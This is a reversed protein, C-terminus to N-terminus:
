TILVYFLYIKFSCYIIEGQFLIEFINKVKFKLRGRSFIRQKPSNLYFVYDFSEKNRAKRRSNISGWRFLLFPVKWILQWFFFFLFSFAHFPWWEVIDAKEQFPLGSLDGFSLLLLLLIGPTWTRESLFFITREVRVATLCKIVMKQLM